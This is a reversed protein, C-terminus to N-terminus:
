VVCVRSLSARGHRVLIRLRRFPQLRLRAAQGARRVMRALRLEPRHHQRTQTGSMFSVIVRRDDEPFKAASLMTQRLRHQDSRRKRGGAHGVRAQHHWVGLAHMRRGPDRRGRRAPVHALPHGPALAAQGHIHQAQDPHRHQRGRRVLVGGPDGQQVPDGRLTTDVEFTVAGYLDPGEGDATGETGPSPQIEAAVDETKTVHAIVVTPRASRRARPPRPM